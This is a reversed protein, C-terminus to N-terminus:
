GAADATEAAEALAAVAQSQALAEAYVAAGRGESIDVSALVSSLVISPLLHRLLASVRVVLDQYDSLAQSMSQIGAYTGVIVDATEAPVVHPLLEGQAQAKELLGRVLDGWRLFPGSRDLGQALQDMTLRVAARVIPDTQLRYTHLMVVDVIEQMKSARDPIVLNQDQAALVGQALDDKSQFHFYLAGKTVGATSLIESITATQYGREEFVKAAALLISRRTRIAREQEAM